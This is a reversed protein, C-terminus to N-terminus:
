ASGLEDVWVEGPLENRGISRTGRVTSVIRIGAIDHLSRVWARVEDYRASLDATTPRALRVRDPFISPGGALEGLASSRNWQRRLQARIDGVSTWANTTM